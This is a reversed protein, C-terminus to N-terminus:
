FLVRLSTTLSDLVMFIRRLSGLAIQFIGKIMAELLEVQSKLINVISASRAKFPSTIGCRLRFRGRFFSFNGQFVQLQKDKNTLAQANNRDTSDLILLQATPKVILSTHCLLM